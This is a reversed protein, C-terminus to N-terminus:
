RRARLAWCRRRGRCGGSRPPGVLPRLFSGCAPSRPPPWAPRPAWARPRRAPARRRLGRMLPRIVVSSCAPRCTRRRRGPARRRRRRRAAARSGRARCRRAAPRERQQVGATQARDGEVLAAVGLARPRATPAVVPDGLEGAVDLREEVPDAGRHVQDAVVPPGHHGPGDGRAARVQQAREGGDRHRVRRRVERRHPARPLQQPGPVHEEELQREQGLQRPTPAAPRHVPHEARDPHGVLLDGPEPALDDAGAREM